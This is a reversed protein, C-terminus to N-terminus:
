MSLHSKIRYVYLSSHKKHGFLLNVATQNHLEYVVDVLNLLTCVFFFIQTLGNIIKHTHSRRARTHALMHQYIFNYNLQIFYIHYKRLAFKENVACAYQQVSAETYSDSIATM